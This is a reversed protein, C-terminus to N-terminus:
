VRSDDAPKTDPGLLNDRNGFSSMNLASALQTEKETIGTIDDALKSAENYERMWPDAYSAM